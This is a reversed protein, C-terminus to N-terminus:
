TNYVRAPVITVVTRSAESIRRHGVVEVALVEAIGPHIQTGIVLQKGTM